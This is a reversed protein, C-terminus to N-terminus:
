IEEKRVLNYVQESFNPLWKLMYEVLQLPCTKFRGFALNCSGCLIGRHTGPQDHDHDIQWCDNYSVGWTCDIRKCIACANGQLALIANREVTGGTIGYSHKLDYRRKRDLHCIRCCRWVQGNGKDMLHINDDTLTHGNRCTPGNPRGISEHLPADEGRMRARMRQQALRLCENHKEKDKYPM